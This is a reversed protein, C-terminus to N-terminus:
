EGLYEVDWIIVVGQGLNGITVDNGTAAASRLTVTYASTGLLRVQSIKVNGYYQSGSSLMGAEAIAATDYLQVRVGNQGATNSYMNLTASIRYYGAKVPTLTIGPLKNGGSTHSSVSPFNRSLYTGFTCSSDATPDGFSASTRAWSCNSDHYGTWFITSSQSVNAQSYIETSNSAWTGATAEQIRVRALLRVAKSTVASTTYLVNASDAAGAGGEATSSQISNDDLYGNIVGLVVTGSNNILYVSLFCDIASSCGLTSGSSVVLSTAATAKVYTLSGDSATASRFAALCPNKASPDAGTYDKLAITLANSGVSTAITCNKLERAAMNQNSMKNIGLSADPVFFSAHALSSFLFTFLFTQFLM